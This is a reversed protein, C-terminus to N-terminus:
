ALGASPWTMEQNEKLKAVEEVANDTVLRANGEVKELTKSFM